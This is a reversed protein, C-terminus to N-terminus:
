AYNFGQPYNALPWTLISRVEDPTKKTLTFTACAHTYREMLEKDHSVIIAASQAKEVVRTFIECIKEATDSDVAATPEDALVLAPRHILARAIAVRQRQGGSLHQPKKNIQDSIGLESLLDQMYEESEKACIGLLKAPLLINERVNLFPLLGGSQLVYGFDRRRVCALQSDNAQTLLIEKKDACQIRMDGKTPRLILALIDLLTSKGCGSKGVVAVIKGTQMYLSPVDLQFISGNKERRLQIDHASLWMM